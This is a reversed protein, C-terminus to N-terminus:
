NKRLLPLIERKFISRKIIRYHPHYAARYDPSHSIAYEGNILVSDIFLKDEQYHPLQLNMKGLKREIRKWKRKWSSITPRKSNASEIFTELLKEKPLLDRYITLISVRVFRGRMGCPEYLWPQLEKEDTSKLEYNLYKEVQTKDKVLHEAGMYDQFCSKYIDLLRLKPYTQMQHIVYTKLGQAQIGLSFLFGLVILICKRRMQRM